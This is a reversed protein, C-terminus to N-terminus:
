VNVQSVIKFYENKGKRKIRPNVLVKKLIDRTTLRGRRKAGWKIWGTVALILFIIDRGVYAIPGNIGHVVIAISNSAMWLLFCWRLRHNNAVVGVIALLSGFGAFLEIM